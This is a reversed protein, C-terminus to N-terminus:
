PIVLAVQIVLFVAYLTALSWGESRTITRDSQAFIYMALAGASLIISSVIFENTNVFFRGNLVPLLGFIATNTLASGLYNGFAIDTSKKQVSRLAIVLEPVNTGISLVLLGIFSGTVGLLVSFYGTEDILIRSAIFIVVGGGIINLVDRLLAKMDDFPAINTTHAADYRAVHNQPRMFYLLTIYGLICLVGENITAVGDALLIVPLVVAVLSAALRTATLTHRLKIGGSGIALLPIILLFIVVSAGALNGASIQPARELTANIMVSLESISTIFGLIFFAATFRSQGFRQAIRIIADVMRGGFFWVIAASLVFLTIHGIVIM